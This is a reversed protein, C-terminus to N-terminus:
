QIKKDMQRFYILLIPLILLIFTMRRVMNRKLSMFKYYESRLALIITM